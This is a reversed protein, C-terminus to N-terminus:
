AASCEIGAVGASPIADRVYNSEELYWSWYGIEVEEEIGLSSLDISIESGEQAHGWAIESYDKLDAGM